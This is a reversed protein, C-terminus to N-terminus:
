LLSRRRVPRSGTRKTKNTEQTSSASLPPHAMQSVAMAENRFRNRASEDTSLTSKLVKIAVNRGLRGDRGLYVDAMGGRGILEHVEYRGSLVRGTWPGRTPNTM